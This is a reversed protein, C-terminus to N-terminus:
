AAEGQRTLAQALALADELRDNGWFLEDKVIFSPAGFIGLQRAATTQERLRQKVVEGQAQLLIDKAQAPSVLASLVDLMAADNDIDSDRVFNLQMVAQVFDAIWPADENALAIRSPLIARRPFDGPKRFPLAHKAAERAMDKWMYAGKDAYIIFPSNNWGQQQFIPGLLFPRWNIQIGARQALAPLRMSSLYSYPSGFEFWFDMKM